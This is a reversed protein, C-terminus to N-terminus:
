RNGATAIEQHPGDVEQLRCQYGQFQDQSLFLEACLRGGGAGHSHPATTLVTVKCRPPNSGVLQSDETPTQMNESCGAEESVDLNTQTTTFPQKDTRNLVTSYQQGIWDPM